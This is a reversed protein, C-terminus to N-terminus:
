EEGGPDPQQLIPDIDSDFYLCDMRFGNTVKCAKTISVTSPITKTFIDNM